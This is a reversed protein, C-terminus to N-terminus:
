SPQCLVRALVALHRCLVATQSATTCSQQKSPDLTLGALGALLFNSFAATMNSAQIICNPRASVMAQPLWRSQCLSPHQFGSDRLRAALDVPVELGREDFGIKFPLM